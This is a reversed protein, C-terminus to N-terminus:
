PFCKLAKDTKGPVRGVSSQSPDSSAMYDLIQIPEDNLYCGLVMDELEFTSLRWMEEPTMNTKQASLVTYFPPGGNNVRRIQSHFCMLYQQNEYWMSVRIIHLVGEIEALLLRRIRFPRMHHYRSIPSCAISPHQGLNIDRGGFVEGLVEQGQLYHIPNAKINNKVLSLLAMEKLHKWAYKNLERSNLRLRLSMNIVWIIGLVKGAPREQQFTSNIKLLGQEKMTLPTLPYCSLPHTIIEVPISFMRESHNCAKKDGVVNVAGYLHVTYEKFIFHPVIGKRQHQLSLFVESETKGIKPIPQSLRTM